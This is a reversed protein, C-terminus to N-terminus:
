LARAKVGSAVLLRIGLCGIRMRTTMDCGEEEIEVAAPGVDGARQRGAGEGDERAQFIHGNGSKAAVQNGCKCCCNRDSKM